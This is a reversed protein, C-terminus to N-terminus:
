VLTALLLEGEVELIPDASVSRRIAEFYFTVWPTTTAEFYTNSLCYGYDDCTKM